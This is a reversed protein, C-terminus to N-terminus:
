TNFLKRCAILLQTIKNLNLFLLFTYIAWVLISSCYSKVGCYVGCYVIEVRKSDTRTINLKWPNIISTWTRDCERCLHSEKFCRFACKIYTLWCSEEVHLCSKYHQHVMPPPVPPMHGWMFKHLPQYGWVNKFSHHILCEYKHPWYPPLM